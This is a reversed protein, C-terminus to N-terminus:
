NNFMKEWCYDYFYDSDVDRIYEDTLLLKDNKEKDIGYNSKLWIIYYEITFDPVYIFIDIENGFVDGEDYEASDYFCIEPCGGDSETFYYDLTGNEIIKMVEEKTYKRRNKILEEINTM